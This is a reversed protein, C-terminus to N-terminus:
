LELCQSIMNWNIIDMCHIKLWFITSHRSSSLEITARWIPSWVFSELSFRTNSRQCRIVTWFIQMDILCDLPVPEIRKMTPSQCCCHLVWNFVVDHKCTPTAPFCACGNIAVTPHIRIDSLIILYFIQGSRVILHHRTLDLFENLTVTCLKFRSWIVMWSLQDLCFSGVYDLRWKKPTRDWLIIISTALKLSNCGVRLSYHLGYAHPECAM